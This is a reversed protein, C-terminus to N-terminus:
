GRKKRREAADVDALVGGANWMQVVNVAQKFACIPSAGVGIWWVVDGGVGSGMLYVVLFFLENGACVIFLV